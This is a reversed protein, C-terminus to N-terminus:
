GTSSARSASRVPSSSACCTCASPRWSSCHRGTTCRACRAPRRPHRVLHRADVGDGVSMEVGKLPVYSGDYHVEAMSGPLLVDPVHGLSSSSSATSRSRASCSRGTTPSSRAVSSRSRLRLHQHARRHLEGRRGHLRGAEASDDRTTMTTATSLASGSARASPNPSTARRSSTARTTSPSRCSRSRASPRDSSSRATTRRRRVAVPPVPLAPPADAARVPRRPMRRAHLDQLLRRHRRVVLGRSGPAQNLESPSSACSSCPRRPRRRSSATELENLGEPIVHFASGIRSTPPRSRCAAVPRPHPAHGKEVHHPQAARRPAPGATRIRPVARRRAAPLRDARRHPQQPDGDAPSAPSRTPRPSSRSPPQAHTEASGGIPHAPRRAREDAM